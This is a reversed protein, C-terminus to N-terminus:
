LRGKFFKLYKTLNYAEAEIAFLQIEEKTLLDLLDPTKMLEECQAAFATARSIDENARDADRRLRETQLLVQLKSIQTPALVRPLHRDEICKELHNLTASSAAQLFTASDVHTLLAHIFKTVDSPFWTNTSQRRKLEDAIATKSEKLESLPNDRANQYMKILEDPLVRTLDRSSSAIANLLKKLNQDM